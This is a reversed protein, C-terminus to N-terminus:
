SGSVIGYSEGESVAVMVHRVKDALEHLPRSGDFPWEDEIVYLIFEDSIMWGTASEVVGPGLDKKPIVLYSEEGRVDWRGPFEQLTSGADYPPALLDQAVFCFSHALKGQAVLWEDLWANTRAARTVTDASDMLLEDVRAESHALAWVDPRAWGRRCVARGLEGSNWLLGQVYELLDKPAPIRALGDVV